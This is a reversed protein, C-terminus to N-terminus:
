TVPYQTSYDVCSVYYNSIQIQDGGTYATNDDFSIVGFITGGTNLDNAGSKAVVWAAGDWYSMSYAYTQCNYVVKVTQPKTINVSTSSMVGARNSRAIYKSNNAGTDSLWGLYYGGSKYIGIMFQSQSNTPDTWNVTAQVVMISQSNIEMSDNTTLRNTFMTKNSAHNNDILLQGTGSTYFASGTLKWHNILNIAADFTDYSMVIQDITSGAVVADKYRRGMELYGNYNFHVTTTPYDTELDDENVMYIGNTGYNNHIYKIQDRRVAYSWEWSGGLPHSLIRTWFVKLNTLGTESRLDTFFAIFNNLYADAMTLNTNSDGEGQNWVFGGLTYVSPLLPLALQINDVLIDFYEGTAYTSWTITPDDALQTGGIAYKLLYVICNQENALDIAMSMEAGWQNRPDGYQNNNDDSANLDEFATGNWVQVQPFTGEYEVPLDSMAATGMANSQGAFILFIPTNNFANNSNIQIGKNVGLHNHSLGM